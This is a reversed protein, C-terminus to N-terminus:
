GCPAVTLVRSFRNKFESRAKNILREQYERLKMSEM